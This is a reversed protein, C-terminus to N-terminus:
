QLTIKSDARSMAEAIELKIRASEDLMQALAGALDGARARARVRETSALHLRDMDDLMRLLMACRADSDFPDTLMTM